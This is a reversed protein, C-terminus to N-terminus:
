LDDILPHMVDPVPNQAVNTLGNPEVDGGFKCVKRGRLPVFQSEDHVGELYEM